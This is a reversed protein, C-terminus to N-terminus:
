RYTQRDTQRDTQKCDGKRVTHVIHRLFRGGGKLKKIVGYFIL